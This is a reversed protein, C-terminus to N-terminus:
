QVEAKGRKALSDARSNMEADLSKEKSHGPVWRLRTVGKALEILQEVLEVNKTARHAGSALGLVYKSDSVLEIEDGGDLNDAGLLGKIAARLEATQNTGDPLGGYDCGVVEGDRVLVYAWGIAGTGKGSSSGDTYVSVTM